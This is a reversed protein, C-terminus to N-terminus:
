QVGARSFGRKHDGTVGGRKSQDGPGQKMSGM